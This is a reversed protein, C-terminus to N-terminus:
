EGFRARWEDLSLWLNVRGAKGDAVATVPSPRYVRAIFPPDHEDLFAMVRPLTQIFNRALIAHTTDGILMFLPVGARMVMDREDTNYRIEKNHTLAVWGRRGVERLWKTDPTLPGFHDDHREVSIGAERLADPVQHGLDRDTFFTPDPPPKTSSQKRM